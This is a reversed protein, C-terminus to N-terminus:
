KKFCKKFQRRWTGFLHLIGTRFGEGVSVFDYFNAGHWVLCSFGAELYEITCYPGVFFSWVLVERVEMEVM